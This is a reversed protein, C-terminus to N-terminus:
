RCCHLCTKKSHVGREPHPGVAERWRSAPSQLAAAGPALPPDRKVAVEIRELARRLVRAWLKTAAIDKREAAAFCNAALHRLM